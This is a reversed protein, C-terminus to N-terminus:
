LIVRAAAFTYQRKLQGTTAGGSRSRRLRGPTGRQRTPSVNSSIVEHGNPGHVPMFPHEKPRLLHLLGFAKVGV